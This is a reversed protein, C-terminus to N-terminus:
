IQSWFRRNSVQSRKHIWSRTNLNHPLLICAQLLASLSKHLVSLVFYLICTNVKGQSMLKIINVEVHGFLLFNGSLLIIANFLNNSCENDSMIHM